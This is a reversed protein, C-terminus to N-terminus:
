GNYRRGDPKGQKGAQEPTLNAKFAPSLKRELARCHEAHDLLTNATDELIGDHLAREGSYLRGGHRPTFGLRRAHAHVGGLADVAQRYLDLQTQPDIPKTNAM